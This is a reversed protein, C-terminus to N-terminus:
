HGPLFIGADRAKAVTHNGLATEIHAKWSAQGKASFESMEIRRDSPLIVMRRIGIGMVDCVITMVGLNGSQPDQMVNDYAQFVPAIVNPDDPLKKGVFKVGNSIVVVWEELRMSGM